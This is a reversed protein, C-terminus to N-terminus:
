PSVAAAWARVLEPMMTFIWAVAAVRTAMLIAKSGRRAFYVAALPLVIVVVFWVVLMPVSRGHVLFAPSVIPLLLNMNSRENRVLSKGARIATLEVRVCDQLSM